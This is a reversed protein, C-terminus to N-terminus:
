YIDLCSLTGCMYMQLLKKTAQICSLFDIVQLLQFVGCVLFMGKMGKCHNSKDMLVACMM